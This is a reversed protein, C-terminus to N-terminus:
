ELYRDDAQLARPRIVANANQRRAM